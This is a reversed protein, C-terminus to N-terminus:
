EHHPPRETLYWDDSYEPPADGWGIDGEDTTTNPLVEEPQHRQAATPSSSSSAPPETDPAEPRQDPVQGNHGRQLASV